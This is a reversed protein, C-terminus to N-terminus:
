VSSSITNLTNELASRPLSVRNTILCETPDTYLLSFSQSRKPYLFTKHHKKVNNKM